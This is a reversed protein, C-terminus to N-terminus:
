AAAGVEKRSRVRLSIKTVPCRRSLKPPPKSNSRAPGEVRTRIKQAWFTDVMAMNGGGGLVAIAYLASNITNDKLAEGQIVEMFGNNIDIIQTGGKAGVPPLRSIFKM